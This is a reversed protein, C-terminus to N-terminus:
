VSIVSVDKGFGYRPLFCRDSFVEILSLPVMTLSIAGSALVNLEYKLSIRAVRLLIM